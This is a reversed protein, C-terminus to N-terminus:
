EFGIQRTEKGQNWGSPRPHLRRLAGGRDQVSAADPHAQFRFFRWLRNAFGPLLLMIVVLDVNTTPLFGFPFHWILALVLEM